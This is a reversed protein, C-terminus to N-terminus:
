RATTREDNRTPGIKWAGLGGSEFGDKLLAYTAPEGGGDARGAAAAPHGAISTAAGFDLRWAALAGTVLAAALGAALAWRRFGIRHGNPRPGRARRARAAEFDAVEFDAVEACSVWALEERCSPCVALHREIRERDMGEPEAGLGYEALAFSPVHRTVLRWAAATEELELRCAGCASLHELLSQRESEEIAGNVLWPLSETATRCASGPIIEPTSM